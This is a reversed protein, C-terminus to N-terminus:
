PRGAVAPGPFFDVREFKPRSLGELNRGFIWRIGPNALAYSRGRVVDEGGVFYDGDFDPVFLKWKAFSRSIYDIAAEGKGPKERNPLKTWFDPKDDNKVFLYETEVGSDCRDYGYGGTVHSGSYYIVSAKLSRSLSLELDPFPSDFDGNDVEEITTWSQGKIRFVILNVAGFKVTKGLANLIPRGFQHELARSVREPSDHILLPALNGGVTGLGTRKSWDQNEFEGKAKLMAAESQQFPAGSRMFAVFCATSLIMFRKVRVALLMNCEAGFQM